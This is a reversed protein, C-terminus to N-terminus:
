IIGDTTLDTTVITGDHRYGVFHVTVPDPVVTSYEALDVSNLDFVDGNSLSFMLSDGGAARLYATGNYPDSPYAPTVRGFQSRAFLPRFLMGSESYNTVGIDSAPPYIPPGDFAIQLTGQGNSNVPVLVLVALVAAYLKGSM